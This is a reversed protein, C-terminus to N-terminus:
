SSALAAKVVGGPLYVSTGWRGELRARTLNKSFDDANSCESWTLQIGLHDNDVAVARDALVHGVGATQSTTTAIPVGYLRRQAADYPLSMHEVANTTSLMLEISEFDSPHLVIASATYGTTELATMAKRLTVPISTAYAQTVIGSTANIDALVKAEVARHLGYHLENTIFGQLLGNDAMWYHPIGESLHAIVSLSNTVETVSYISTPKVAGDAVVAANNTRTSQRLYAYQATSHGVTPLVDLLGTAPQGLAIPDPRFEQAVVAAGSSALAKTSLLTKAMKSGFTLRRNDGPQDQHEDDALSGAVFGNLPHQNFGKSRVEAAELDARAQALKEVRAELGPLNGYSKTAVSQGILRDLEAAEANIERRVAEIQSQNM